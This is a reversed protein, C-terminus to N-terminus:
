QKVIRIKGKRFKLIDDGIIEGCMYPPVCPPCHVLPEALIHGISEEVDVMESDAFLADKFTMAKIPAPKRKELTGAEKKCNQVPSKIGIDRISKECSIRRFANETRVYDEETNETSFMLVIHKPDHYEPCIKEEILFSLIKDDCEITIKLPEEGNLMFGYRKLKHKLESVKNATSIIDGNNDLYANCLDLSELILYSPSTTAFVTMAQKAYRRFFDDTMKSIHLYAGGTLVPLTKHASDCCMDAGLDMPHCSKELFKLYAGHANDVLLLIGYRHCVAALEKIDLMHGLYDPSTVYLADSLRQGNNAANEDDRLEESLSVLYNEFDDGTVTCSEYAESEKQMIFDVDIDLVAAASMFSSHVNRGAVIYPRRGKVLARKKILFLMTRICLSSGETSYLTHANFLRGANEESKAIIGDPDFLFDAGDIETIDHGWIRGKHGPMHLRVTNESVYKEIFDHIPTDM